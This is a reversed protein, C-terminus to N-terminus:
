EGINNPSYTIVLKWEAISGSVPPNGSLYSGSPEPDTDRVILSWNGTVAHGFLHSFNSLLSENSYKVINTKDYINCFDGNTVNYLYTTPLAKNSFMFSFDTRYNKIKNNASLLIKDGSPPALFLQLDQPNTYNLKNIVLELNEITRSDDVFITGSTTSSDFINIGSGIYVKSYIDLNLCETALCLDQFTDTTTPTPTVSPTGTTTPTIVPTPDTSLKDCSESGGASCGNPLSINRRSISITGTSLRINQLYDSSSFEPDLIDLEYVATDFYNFNKAIYGASLQFTILGNNNASLVFGKERYQNSSSSSFKYLACRSSSTTNPKIQLIVCKSTLDVPNNQQNNYQFNLKFDSGEEILFNYEIAPM